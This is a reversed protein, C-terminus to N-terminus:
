EYTRIELLHENPDFFYLTPAPGRAGTEEGSGTNRGVADFTPGYDIGRDRIRGFIADFEARSVAFAYHESGPTGWAALQIQLEPSVRLVRFPGDSGADVFGLVSTYFAVSAVLDNVKLILHDLTM